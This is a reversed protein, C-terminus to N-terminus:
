GLHKPTKDKNYKKEVLKEANSAEEEKTAKFLLKRKALEEKLQKGEREARKIALVWEHDRVAREEDSMKPRFMSPDNSAFHIWGKAVRRTGSFTVPDNNSKPNKYKRM